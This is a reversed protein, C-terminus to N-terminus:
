AQEDPPSQDPAYYQNILEQVIIEPDDTEIALQQAIQQRLNEDQQLMVFLQDITVTQYEGDAPIEGEGAEEPIPYSEEPPLTSVADPGDYEWVPEGQNRTLVQMGINYAVDGIEGIGLEGLQVLRAALENNPTPSALLREGFRQLWQIWRETSVRHEINQLWKLAWAQGRAQHVGELLETFLFELDTDTLPPAVEKPADEVIKSSTKQRGFLRQFFKKLWQVLRRLMHRVM